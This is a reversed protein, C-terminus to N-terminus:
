QGTHHGSWSCCRHRSRDLGFDRACGIGSAGAQMTTHHRGPVHGLIDLLLGGLERRVRIRRVDDLRGARTANRDWHEGDDMVRRQTADAIAREEALQHESVLGLDRTVRRAEGRRALGLARREAIVPDAARRELEPPEVIATHEQIRALAPGLDDDVATTDGLRLAEGRGRELAAHHELEAIADRQEQV